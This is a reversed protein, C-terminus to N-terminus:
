QLSRTGEHVVLSRRVDVERTDSQHSSPGEETWTRWGGDYVSVEAWGMAYLYFAVESARWATGCYLTTTHERTIGRAEWRSAIEAGSRMTNDPNRFDELHHADSGGYAWRAGPIHGRAAIYPYGSTEGIFEAWSRVSLVQAGPDALREAVQATDCFLEPARPFGGPWRSVAQATRKGTELALGARVWAAKGGQMLRVDRVGAYRLIHALRAAALTNASYVVVPREPTLGHTLLCRKLAEDHRRRWLPAEELEDSDIYHATPVHGALYDAEMGWGVEVVLPACSPAYPPQGGEILEALWRPDVLCQFHALSSLTRGEILASAIPDKLLCVEGYGLAKLRVGLREADPGYLAIDRGKTLARETLLTLLDADALDDSWAADFHLAGPVHGGREHTGEPWGYVQAAHRTDVVLQGRRCHALDVTTLAM